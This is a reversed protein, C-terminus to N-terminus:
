EVCMLRLLKLQEKQWPVAPRVPVTAPVSARSAADGGTPGWPWVAAVSAMTPACWFCTFGAALPAIAAGKAQAFQWAEGSGVFTSWPFPGGTGTGNPLMATVPPTVGVQFAM